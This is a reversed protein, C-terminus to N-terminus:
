SLTALYHINEDLYIYKEYTNISCLREFIDIHSQSSVNNQVLRVVAITVNGKITLFWLETEKVIYEKPILWLVVDPVEQTLSLPPSNLSIQLWQTKTQTSNDQKSNGVENDTQAGIEKCTPKVIGNKSLPPPDPNDPPFTAVKTVTPVVTTVEKM